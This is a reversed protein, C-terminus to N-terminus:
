LSRQLGRRSKGTAVALYHGKAHLSKITEEINPYLINDNHVSAKYQQRYLEVLRDRREQSLSPYLIDMGQDFGLGIINRIEGTSRQELGLVKIAELMTSVIQGLSDSLTGDWDFILLQFNMHKGM